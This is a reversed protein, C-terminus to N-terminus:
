RRPPKARKTKGPKKKPAPKKKATPKTARKKAAAKKTAAPKTARKKAAAKKATPRATRKNAAPKKAPAKTPELKALSRKPAILQYSERVLEAVLAWDVTGSLDMTVWGKHGVYPARSFRPDDVILAAHDMELKFGCSVHGDKDGCGSFIKDAVRFHPSGWTETEKTDPLALCIRRMKQLATAYTAM